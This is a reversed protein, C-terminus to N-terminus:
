KEARRRNGGSKNLRELHELRLCGCSKSHGIKLDRSPVNGIYGCDCLCSYTVKNTDNNQVRKIVTWRNFKQGALDNWAPYCIMQSDGKSSNGFVYKPKKGQREMRQKENRLCGCSKSKGRVLEQLRVSATWGCECRCEIMRKGHSKASESIVTWRHFKDGKNVRYIMRGRCGCSKSGGEKKILEHYLVARQTGCDCLCNYKRTKQPTATSEDFSVVQWMGFRKGIVSDNKLIDIAKMMVDDQM